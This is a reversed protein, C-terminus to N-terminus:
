AEQPWLANIASGDTLGGSGGCGDFIYAPRDNVPVTSRGAYPNGPRDLDIGAQAAIDRATQEHKAYADPFASHQVAQAAETYSMSMWGDIDVLGPPSPPADGGFFAETAYRADLIQDATGWGAQTDDVDGSGPPLCSASAEDDTAAFPAILMLGVIGLVAVLLTLKLAIGRSVALGAARAIDRDDYM